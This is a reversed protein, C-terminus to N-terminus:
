KLDNSDILKELHAVRETLEELAEKFYVLENVFLEMDRRPYKIKKLVLRPNPEQYTIDNDGYKAAEYEVARQVEEPLSM